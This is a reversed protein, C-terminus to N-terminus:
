SHAKRPSARPTTLMPHTSKLISSANKHIADTSVNDMVVDYASIRDTAVFLLTYDDISYLERVKGTALKHLSPIDVTTLAANASSSM